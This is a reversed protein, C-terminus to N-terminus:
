NCKMFDVSIEEEVEGDLTAKLNISIGEPKKWLIDTTELFNKGDRKSQHVLVLHNSDRLEGIHDHTTGLNDVSFWHLKGEIPDFGILNTGILQGLDPIDGTEEMYLGQGHPLSRFDVKYLFNFEQAGMKLKAEGEWKGVLTLVKKLVEPVNEDAM